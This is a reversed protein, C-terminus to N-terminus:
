ATCSTNQISSFRLKAARFRVNILPWFAKGINWVSRTIVLSGQPWPWSELIQFTCHSQSLKPFSHQRRHSCTNKPLSSLCAGRFIGGGHKTNHRSSHQTVVSFVVTYCVLITVGYGEGIHSVSAINVSCGIDTSDAICGCGHKTNHRSSRQTVVSCVVTHCIIHQATMFSRGSPAERWTQSRHNWRWRQLPIFPAGHWNQFQLTM